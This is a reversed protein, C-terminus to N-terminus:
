SNAIFFQKLYFFTMYQWRFSVSILQSLLSYEFFLCSFAFYFFILSLFFSTPPLSDHSRDLHRQISHHLFPAFCYSFYFFFSFSFSVCICNSSLQTLSTHPPLFVLKIAICCNLLSQFVNILLTLSSFYCPLAIFIVFNSVWVSTLCFFIINELFLISM